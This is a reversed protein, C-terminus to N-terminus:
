AQGKVHSHTQNRDPLLQSDSAIDLPEEEYPQVEGPIRAGQPEPVVDNYYEGAQDVPGPENPGPQLVDRKEMDPNEGLPNGRLWGPTKM